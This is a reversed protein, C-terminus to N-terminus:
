QVYSLWASCSNVELRKKAPMKEVNTPLVVLLHSLLEPASHGSMKM